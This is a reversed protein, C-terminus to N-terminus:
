NILKKYLGKFRYRLWISAIALGSLYGVWIGSPGMNFQFACIYSIPLAMLIWTVFTIITPAKVDELGRLIGLWAIQLGDFVQFIGAVVMLQSAVLLVEFEDSFIRPLVNRALIFAIATFTMFVFVKHVIAYASAKVNFWDGAGRYTSVKITAASALGSSMMYTVSAIAIVVQHAAMAEKSIWGMMIAGMSFAFVEIVMQGGIPFGIKILEWVKKMEVKTSLYVKKYSKFFPLYSFVLVFILPMLIRSIFTAWGAGMVGMEPAGLKGYILIYNLIINIANAALTIVMAIRTNSIGEAFQKFVFFISIPFISSVIVIYFPIAMAVVEPEQGMFPMLLSVLLMIITQAVAFMGVGVIGQKLWFGTKHSNGSGHTKGVLPTVAISLGIILVFGVIFISNAFSVAALETSGLQGVMLTDVLNVVMQGAQSLVVPLALKLNPLYHPKYPELFSTIKNKM